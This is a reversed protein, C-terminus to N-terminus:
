SIFRHLLWQTIDEHPVLSATIAFVRKWCLRACAYEPQYCCQRHLRQFPCKLTEKDPVSASATTKIMFLHFTSRRTKSLSHMLSMETASQLAADGERAIIDRTHNRSAVSALLENWRRESQEPALSLLQTQSPLQCDDLTSVIALWARQYVMGHTAITTNDDLPILCSDRARYTEDDFWRRKTRRGLLHRLRACWPLGDRSGSM